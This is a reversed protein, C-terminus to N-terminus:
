PIRVCDHKQITVGHLAPDVPAEQKQNRAMQHNALGRRHLARCAKGARCGLCPHLKSETCWRPVRHQAKRRAMIEFVRRLQLAFSLGSVQQPM